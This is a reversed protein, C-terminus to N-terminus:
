RVAFFSEIQSQAFKSLRNQMGVEEDYSKELLDQIEPDGYREALLSLSAYCAIEFHEVKQGASSLAIPNAETKGFHRLLEKGESLIGDIGKSRDTFNLDALTKMLEKAQDKITPLGELKSSKININLMKFIQELRQIQKQTEGQHMKFLDSLQPSAANEQMKILEEAIAKEAHYIHRLGTEFLLDFATYKEM